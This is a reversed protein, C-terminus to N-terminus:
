IPENRLMLGLWHTEVEAKALIEAEYANYDNNRMADEVDREWVELDNVGEFYMVHFGYESQVVEVDGVERKEDFCWEDFADVMEGPKVAEYLGGNEASGTDNSNEAALAAFAEVTAGDEEWQAMLQEAKTKADALGTTDNEATILIHRVNVTKTTDQAKPSVMYAVYYNLGDAAEIVEIDGKKVDDSFAWDALNKDLGSVGTYNVDACLSDDEVTVDEGAAEQARATAAKAFDKESKIGKAFEEAYEKAQEITIGESTDTADATGFSEVRIDVKLFENEHEDYYAAKEDETYEFSAFKAEKFATAMLERQASETFLFRNFGIGYMSSLYSDIRINNGNAATEVEALITDIEAQFDEPLTFGEAEAAESWAVVTKLNEVAKEHFYDAYTMDESYDQKDLSKTTDIVSYGLYSGMTNYYDNFANQYYYSYEATSIDTNGVTVATIWRKTVGVSPMIIAGLVLVIAVVIATVKIRVVTSHKVKASERKRNMEQRQRAEERRKEIKSQTDAM